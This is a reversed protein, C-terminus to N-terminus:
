KGREQWILWQNGDPDLLSFWKVGSGPGYLDDAIPKVKVGKATLDGYAAQIDSTSLYFQMTGPKLNGFYTSLTIDLGGGPPVVTVWRNGGASYDKLVAFGLDETYFAKAQDMNGVALMTMTIKDLPQESYAAMPIALALISALLTVSIKM